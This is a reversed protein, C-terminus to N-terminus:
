NLAVAVIAFSEIFCALFRTQHLDVHADCVVVGLSGEEKRFRRGAVGDDHICLLALLQDAYQDINSPQGAAPKTSVSILHKVSSSLPFALSPLEAALELKLRHPQHLIPANRHRLRGAIEIQM